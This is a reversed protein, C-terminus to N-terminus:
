MSSTLPPALETAGASGDGANGLRGGIGAVLSEKSSEWGGVGSLGGCGLGAAARAPMMWFFDCSAAGRDVMEGGGLTLAGVRRRTCNVGSSDSSSAGGGWRGWRGTDCTAEGGGVWYACARDGDGGTLDGGARLSM